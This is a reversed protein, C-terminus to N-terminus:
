KSLVEFAVGDYRTCEHLKPKTKGLKPQWPLERPERSFEPLMNSNVLGTYRVTCAFLEEM